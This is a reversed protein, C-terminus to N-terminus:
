RDATWTSDPNYTTIARAAAETGEGLDREWVIGDQNLVFTMIGTVDYQAPWAILAFGGTLKGDVLYNRAGGPAAAGQATLIRFYYGHFPNPPAGAVPPPAADISAAALLQGLPSRRQGPRAEWYLGNQRAPDSRFAAAYIGAPQGDHAYKAYRHQAAVYARCIRIAALENRGIRRALIEEKGAATDFRWQGGDKVLPIPFPWQEFGVVLTAHGLGTPKIQWYEAVAASFVQQNRRAAVPDSTDVLAQADPGFIAMVEALDGSNVATTLATVALEPTAFARAQQASDTRRCGAPTVLTLSGLALAAAIYVVQRHTSRM